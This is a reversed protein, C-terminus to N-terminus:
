EELWLGCNGAVFIFGLPLDPDPQLAMGFEELGGLTEVTCQLGERSMGMSDAAQWEDESLCFSSAMFAKVHASFSSANLPPEPVEKPTVNSQMAERIDFSTFVDRLCGSTEVTLPEKGFMGLESLFLRLATEDELCALFKAATISDESFNSINELCAHEGQSLETALKDTNLSRLM